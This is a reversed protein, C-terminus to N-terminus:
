IGYLSHVKCNIGIYITFEMLDSILSKRLDNIAQGRGGEGDAQAQGHHRPALHPAHPTPDDPPFPLFTASCGCTILRMHVAAAARGGTCFTM